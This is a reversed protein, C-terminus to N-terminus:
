YWDCTTASRPMAPTGHSLYCTHRHTCTNTVISKTKTITPNGRTVPFEILFFNRKYVPLKMIPLQIHIKVMETGRKQCAQTGPLEFCDLLGNLLRNEGIYCLM